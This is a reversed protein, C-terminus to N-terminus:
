SALLLSRRRNESLLRDLLEYRAVPSVSWKLVQKYAHFGHELEVDSWGYAVIVERDLRSHITRIEDVDTDDGPKVRPDNVLNYLETVGLNRRAIIATRRTDLLKGLDILQATPTIRPFTDFVDSPTYVPDLRMSSGYRQAWLQHLSSSLLAQHGYDDTAFVVLKHSFVQGTPVRIPLQTKSTQVLALVEVLGSLAARMASAPRWFRWWPYERVAQDSNRLREPKVKAVARQFPLTYRSSQEESRDNFDIVWRSATATPSGYLDTGGLYPFVVDRNSPDANIWDAAEAPDITFGLGRVNTGQFAIGKNEALPVPTWDIAGAPELLPSIRAVAVGDSIKKVDSAVRGRTGWVASFELNASEAPWSRSQIARTLTFGGAVMADLGM